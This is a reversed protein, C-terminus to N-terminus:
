QATGNAGIRALVHLGFSGLTAWNYPADTANSWWDHDDNSPAGDCVAMCSTEAVPLEVAVFLHEGATLTIPTLLTATVVRVNNEPKYAKVDENM